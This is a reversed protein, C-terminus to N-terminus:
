QLWFISPAPNIVPPVLIHPSASVQQLRHQQHQKERRGAARCDLLRCDRPAEIRCVLPFKLSIKVAIQRLGTVRGIGAPQQRDDSGMRAIDVGATNGAVGIGAQFALIDTRDNQESRGVKRRQLASCDVGAATQPCRETHHLHILRQGARQDAVPISHLERGFREFPLMGQLHLERKQLLNELVEAHYRNQDAPLRRLRVAMQGVSYGGKELLIFFRDHNDTGVQGM